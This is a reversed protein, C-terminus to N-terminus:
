EIQADLASLYKEATKINAEKENLKSRIDRFEDEISKVLDSQLGDSIESLSGRFTSVSKELERVLAGFIRDLSNNLAGTLAAKGEANRVEGTFKATIAETDSSCDLSIIPFEIKSIYDVALGRFLSIDFDADGVSFNNTVVTMIKRKLEQPNLTEKFVGEIQGASREAYRAINGVAESADLYSYTETTTYRETHGTGWSFPNYWRSDSVWSEHETTETGTKTRMERSESIAERLNKVADLKEAELRTTFESIAEKIEARIATMRRGTEREMVQLEKQDKDRLISLRRETNEKFKRLAFRLKEDAAAVLNGCKDELIAERACIVEQFVEELKEWNAIKRLDEDMDASFKSLKAYTNLEDPTMDAVAKGRMNKAQASVLIPKKCSELLEILRDSGGRARLIEQERSFLEPVRRFKKGVIERADPINDSENEDPESTDAFIDGEDKVRLIDILADDLKSGVLALRNVGESPLIDSLMTVDGKSLFYSCPSLFFIVDCFKLFERTRFTRAVVPDNLGPTDVISLERFADNDIYLVVAKVADTYKGNEGVYDNLNKTMEDYSEYEVREKERGLFGAAAGLKTSDGEFEDRKYYEIEIAPKGESYEIKTLAATKPTSAKPLVSRGDFLLTNLFSSKGAKVQGVVGINLKRDARFFDAVKAAFEGGIKEIESVDKADALPRLNEATQAIRGSFADL